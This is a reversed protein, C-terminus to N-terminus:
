DSSVIGPRANPQETRSGSSAGEGGTARELIRERYKSKMQAVTSSVLPNTAYPTVKSDIAREMDAIAAEVSSQDDPDFRLTAIEGDLEKFAKSAESLQRQLKDLGQIGFNM